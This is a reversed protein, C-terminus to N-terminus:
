GDCKAFEIKNKLKFDMNETYYLEERYEIHM